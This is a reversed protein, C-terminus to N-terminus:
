KDVLVFEYRDIVFSENQKLLQSVFETLEQTTILPDLDTMKADIPISTSRIALCSWVGLGYKESFQLTVKTPYRLAEKGSSIISTFTNQPFLRPPVLPAVQLLTKSDNFSELLIFFRDNPQGLLELYFSEKVNIQPLYDFAMQQSAKIDICKIGQTSPVQFTMFSQQYSVNNILKDWVRGQQQRLEKETAFAWSFNAELWTILKEASTATLTKGALFANGTGIDISNIYGNSGADKSFLPVPKIKKNGSKKAKKSNYLYLCLARLQDLQDIAGLSRNLKEFEDKHGKKM